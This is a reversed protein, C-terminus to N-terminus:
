GAASTKWTPREASSSARCPARALREVKCKIRQKEMSMAGHRESEMGRKCRLEREDDLAEVLVLDQRHGHAREAAVDERAKDVNGVAHTIHRGVEAVGVWLRPLVKVAQPAVNVAKARGRDLLDHLGIRNRLAVELHRGDMRDRGAVREEARELRNRAAAVLADRDDIGLTLDRGDDRLRHEDVKEGLVNLQEAVQAAAADRVKDAQM